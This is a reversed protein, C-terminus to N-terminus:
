IELVQLLVVVVELLPIDLLQVILDRLDKSHDVLVEVMVQLLM